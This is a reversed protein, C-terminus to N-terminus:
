SHIISQLRPAFRRFLNVTDKEKILACLNANSFTFSGSKGSPVFKSKTELDVKGLLANQRFAFRASM